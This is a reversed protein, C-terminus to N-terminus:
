FNLRKKNLLEKEYHRCSVTVLFTTNGYWLHRVFVCRCCNDICFKQIKGKIIQYLLLYVTPCVIYM